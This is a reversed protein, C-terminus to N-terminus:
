SRRLVAVAEVHPSFVFQDIPTVSELTFGAEVLTRVDRAMTSPACSVAVVTKAKSKAIMRTQADAGARPPDFVVASYPELEKASLPERMLDRAKALVPKIGQTRRVAETLAGIALKDSDVALVQAKAALPFTFTGVGCFLDAVAKAKGVAGVILEAMATQASPVAQLFVGPAPTVGVTGCMLIPQVNTYIQDQDLSVRIVRAARASDAVSQRIAATLEPKAGEIAVDIGNDTMTVNVRAEGTRSLLPTIL